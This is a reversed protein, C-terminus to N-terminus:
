AALGPITDILKVCASNRFVTNGSKCDAILEAMPVEVVEVAEVEIVSVFTVSVLPLITSTPVTCCGTGICTVIVADGRVDPPDATNLTVLTVVTGILKVPTGAFVKVKESEFGLVIVKLSGFKLNM